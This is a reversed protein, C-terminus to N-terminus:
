NGLWTNFGYGRCQVASIKKLFIIKPQALDENSQEPMLQLLCPSSELQPTHAEWQLPKKWQLAHARPYMPKLLRSKWARSNPSLQESAHPNKKSWPDFRHGRCHFVSEWGTSWWPLRTIDTKCRVQNNGEASDKGRNQHLWSENMGAEMQVIKKVISSHWLPPFISTWNVIKNHFFFSPSPFSLSSSFCRYTVSARRSVKLASSHHERLHKGLDWDPSLHQPLWLSWLGTRLDLKLFLSSSLGLDTGGLCQALWSTGAWGPLQPDYAWLGGPASSWHRQFLFM